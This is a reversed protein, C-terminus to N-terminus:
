MGLKRLEPALSEVPVGADLLELAKRLSASYDNGPEEQEAREMTARLNGRM